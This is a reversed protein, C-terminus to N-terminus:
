PLREAIRLVASRSRPNQDIENPSPFQAKGVIRLVAQAGPAAPLRRSVPGASSAERFTRKVLRDELSHFSIVALRGEPRLNQIAAKLGTAVDALENNINIRIAQFTRTAPHKKQQQRPPRLSAVLDALQRTTEISERNRHEVIKRAIRRGQREEGYERLVRAIENESAEALWEAASVGHAPDMRMDLPGDAKFSFGRASDDLQPSSVGLDLLVGDFGSLSDAEAWARVHEDLDAFTGQRVRVRSDEAALETAEAIAEPDKDLAFLRGQETLQALLARSHGGRGFTGDLYRGDPKIALGTIAEELMVPIHTNM